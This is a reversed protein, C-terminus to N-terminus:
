TLQTYHTEPHGVVDIVLVFPVDIFALCGVSKAAKVEGEGALEEVLILAEFPEVKTALITFLSVDSPSDNLAYLDRHDPGRSTM